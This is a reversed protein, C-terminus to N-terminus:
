CSLQDLLQSPSFVHRINNVIDSCNPYLMKEKCFTIKSSTTTVSLMREREWDRLAELERKRVRNVCKEAISINAVATRRYNVTGSITNASEWPFPKLFIQNVSFQKKTTEDKIILNLGICLMFCLRGQFCSFIIKPMYILRDWRLHWGM